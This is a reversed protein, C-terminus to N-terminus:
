DLRFSFGRSATDLQYSSVGLDFLIGDVQAYGLQALLTSLDRFDGQVPVFHAGWPEGLVRSSSICAAYRDICVVVSPLLSAHLRRTRVYSPPFTCGGRVTWPVSMPVPVFTGCLPAPVAMMRCTSCNNRSPSGNPRLISSWAIRSSSPSWWPPTTLPMSSMCPIGCARRCASGGRTM